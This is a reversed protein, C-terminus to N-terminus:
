RWGGLREGGRRQGETHSLVVGRDVIGARSKWVRSDQGERGMTRSQRALSESGGPSLGRQALVCPFLSATQSETQCDQSSFLDPSMASFM